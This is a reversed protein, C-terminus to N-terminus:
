PDLHPWDPPVYWTYLTTGNETVTRRARPIEMKDRVADIAYKSVGHERANKWFEDSPWERKERFILKLWEEALMRKPKRPDHNVAEDATIDVEGLWEVRAFTTTKVIRFALGKALPGLNNKPPVFLVRGPVESDPAFIHGIRVTSMWAVSGIVRSIADIGKAGKNVHTILIIAPARDLSELWAVLCMLVTRVEANKHEDAGGLFNTPPDIVILSPLGSLEWARHLFATDQLTYRAMAEWTMFFVRTMDAGLELLRPALVFDHPDESIILSNGLDFCECVSDPRLDGRSVRAVIDCTVFSKGLGTRGAFLAIFGRAVRNEWLWDVLRPVVSSGQVVIKDDALPEPSLDKLAEISALRKPPRPVGNRTPATREPVERPHQLGFAFGNAIARHIEGPDGDSGLGCARGAADLDKRVEAEDLLGAAVLTGLKLAADYLTDNRFDTCTAVKGCERELAARAYAQKDGSGAVMQWPEAPLPAPPAADPPMTGALGALAKILEVPVPPSDINMPVSMLRSMRHPREPTNAGKRVWTGPIKCIRRADHVHKDIEVAATDFRAGLEKLAKALLQQALKDNPLDVRYLLQWNNGSDVYIPDPWGRSRLFERIAETVQRAAEKEEDSTSANKEAKRADPDILFWRRALIDSSKPPKDLPGRFPNLSFYTGIGGSLDAVARVMADLNDGPLIRYAASPLGQIMTWHAPDVLLGLARRVEQDDIPGGEVTMEWPDSM